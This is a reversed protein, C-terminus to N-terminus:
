EPAGPRSHRRTPSSGHAALIAAVEDHGPGSQYRHEPRCLDFATRGEDDTLTPDAGRALLHRVSASRGNQAAVRLAQRHWHPDTADIPAGADLLRDIVDLRQHDAAMILALLLGTEDVGATPWGDINGAAAAETLSRVRAGARVLEDLVDTMGFVAAHLLASGGAVGGANETALADLDAGAQILVRAVDADGYSAATMLPTEDDSPDGDVPAGADLLLRAMEGTGSLDGTLGLRRSDFRLMAIYNIPAVGHCHDCWGLMEATAWGPDGAILGRARELDCADLASRRERAYRLGAWSGHGFVAAVADRAEEATEHPHADRREAVQLELQELAARAPLCSM